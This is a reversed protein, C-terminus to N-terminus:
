NRLGATMTGRYSQTGSTTGLTSSDVRILLEAALSPELWKGGEPTSLFVM